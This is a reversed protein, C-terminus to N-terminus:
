NGLKLSCTPHANIFAAAAQPSIKSNNIELLKLQPLAGLEQLGKDTIFPANFM